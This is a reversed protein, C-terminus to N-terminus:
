GHALCPEGLRRAHRLTLLRLSIGLSPRPRLGHSLAAPTRVWRSVSLLKLCVFNRNSRNPQTDEDQRWLQTAVLTM